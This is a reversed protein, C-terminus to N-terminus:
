PQGVVFVIMGWPEKRAPPTCMGVEASRRAM